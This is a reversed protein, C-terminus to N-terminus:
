SELDSDTEIHSQMHCHLEHSKGQPKFFTDCGKWRCTFKPGDPNGHDSLLHRLLHEKVGFILSCRQWWCRYNQMLNLKVANLTGDYCGTYIMSKHIAMCLVMENHGGYVQLRDHSQLEYVRVLKDLCATVMVKGLVALSTVAHGHGKYISVLQGTHINHAHVSTDSSGSFVLNNVVKMCLVTKTHGELSRLLLGSKADRVSITSDYSGVLLLRRAGERSTGLCSVGRPGHCEFVNLQRLTKLEFSVVSGNALGAYLINWRIHIHLCLVRDPLSIQELCNKRKISYCRITQDSSGTILRAPMKPVASVLLCNVKNMHGTFVKMCRRTVLCYARATNDGSCTFLMNSYIQLDHVPGSHGKFSGVWLEEEEPLPAPQSSASQFKMTDPPLNIKVHNSNQLELKDKSDEMLRTTQTSSEMNVQKHQVELPGSSQQAPAEPEDEVDSDDIAVVAMKTRTHSEVSATNVYCDSDEDDNGNRQDKEQGTSPDGQGRSIAEDESEESDSTSSATSSQDDAASMARIAGEKSQTKNPGEGLKGKLQNTSERHETPVGAPPAREPLNVTASAPNTPQRSFVPSISPAPNSVPEKKVPLVVPPFPAPNLVPLTSLHIPTLSVFPSSPAAPIPPPLLTQQTSTTPVAAGAGQMGQLIEIRRARLNTIETTVQQKILLLRQVESYAAQLANRAQILSADLTEISGCLEEERLSVALLQDVHVNDVSPHCNESNSTVKQKKGDQCLESDTKQKKKKRKKSESHENDVSADGYQERGLEKKVCVPQPTQLSKSDRSQIEPAGATPEKSIEPGRRAAGALPESSIDHSPTARPLPQSPVTSNTKNDPFISEWQFGDTLPCDQDEDMVLSKTESTPNGLKIGLSSMGKVKELKKCDAQQCIKNLNVNKQSGTSSLLKQLKPKLGAGDGVEGKQTRRATALNLEPTCLKGTHQTADMKISGLPVLTGLRPVAEETVQSNRSEKAKPLSHLPQASAVGKTSSGLPSSSTSIFSASKECKTNQTQTPIGKESGMNNGGQTQAPTRNLHRHKRLKKERLARRIHRLMVTVDVSRIRGTESGVQSSPESTSVPAHVSGPISQMQEFHIAGNPPLDDTTLDFNQTCFPTPRPASFAGKQCPPTASQSPALIESKRVLQNEKNRVLQGTSPQAQTGQQPQDKAQKESQQKQTKLKDQKLGKVKAQKSAKDGEPKSMKQAKQKKPNLQAEMKKSKKRNKNRKKKFIRNLEKNRKLVVSMFQAGLEHELCLPKSRPSPNRLRDKHSQKAIHKAYESLGKSSVKCLSCWHVLDKGKINELAGHHLISLMHSNVDKKLYTERCLICYCIKEFDSTASEKNETMEQNM